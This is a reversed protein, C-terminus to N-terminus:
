LHIFDLEKTITDFIAATAGYGFFWGNATGPNIVLTKGFKKNQTRHTHGCIVVDYKGCQILSEKRRSDTGHYVAFVLKDQDIVCFEGKLEGGIKDFASSLERVELDNNGLVGILRMGDFAKVTEPSVIDGAHIVFRTHKDSFSLIANQINHINDHTDSILGIKMSYM